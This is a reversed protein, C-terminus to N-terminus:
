ASFRVSHNCGPPPQREAMAAKLAAVTLRADISQSLAYGVARRSWADLILAVYVFGATIAVYTIDAVWLQNPGDVVLDAARNPFIPSDHDSDTMAVFRRRMRPLLDHESMLRRIKKHNV